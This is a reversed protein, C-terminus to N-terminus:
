ALRVSHAETLDPVEWRELMREIAFDPVAHERARNQMRLEEAPVEVYVIEIRAGYAAFLDIPQRRLDRSLNTANWVFPQRLRLLVRARERAEAIVAGQDGSSAAGTERRIADLSIVPLAAANRLIWNDKGAGPLGAMMTVTFATDDFAHYDPDRDDLRFYLFRSHDSAFTRPRDLCNKEACYERWLAIRELLGTQDACIRGRADAEALIALLDCRTSLSARFIARDLDPKDIGQMPLQHHRIMGCIRERTEFPTEMEWLIRRADIAGRASHGRSTIRGAEERTCSPKAIDHLVAAAFVSARDPESSARWAPLAALEELVRRLHIFVDGEAHHVPDQPCGRLPELWAFARVLGDWDLRWGPARPVFELLPSM